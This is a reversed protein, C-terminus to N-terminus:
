PRMAKVEGPVPSQWARSRAMSAFVGVAVVLVFGGFAPAALRTGFEALAFGWLPAFLALVLRSALSQVSNLTARLEGVLGKNYEKVLYVFMVTKVLELAVFAIIATITTPLAMALYSLGAVVFSLAIITPKAFRQALSPVRKAVLGSLGYTAAIIIGVESTSLGVEAFISQFSLLAMITPVKLLVLVVFLLKTDGSEAFFVTKATGLDQRITALSHRWLSTANRPQQRIPSPKPAPSKLALFILLPLCAIAANAVAAYHLSYRALIGGLIIGVTASINSIMALTAMEEGIADDDDGYADHIIALDTGSYFSIAIGIFAYTLLLMPLSDTYVACIGALAKGAAAILLTAKRSVRDSLYGSPLECLGLTISLVSHGLFVETLSLGKSLFYPVTVALLVLCSWPAMALRLINTNHQSM